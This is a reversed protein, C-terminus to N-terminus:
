ARYRDRRDIIRAREAAVLYRASGLRLDYSSSRDVGIARLMPQARQSVSGRIGFWEVLRRATLGGHHAQLTGNAKAITWAVAAAATEDKSRRRFIQPDGAAVDALFRRCATRHEVDLLDECCRDVLGAVTRVRDRIDEDVAALDLPEDALPEVDLSELVEDGGVQDRLSELLMASYDFPGDDGFDLDIGPGLLDGLEAFLEPLGGPERGAQDLQALFGDQHRHVARLTQETLRPDIGREAHAFRVLDQLVAPARRMVEDPLLVKRALFDTLLLEVSVPSWRLPDGPGYDSAFWLIGHLLDRAGDDAHAQGDETSLFREALQDLDDDSWEPREYGRGGEPLSRLVWEVLPRCAPWTETEFPPYTMAGLDIAERLRVRADALELDGFRTGPESASLEGFRDVVAEIPEDLVFADKVLTGLNHDIYVVVTLHDDAATTLGLLVNDGDGLVHAMEVARHVRLPTLRRLWRPPKHPRDQLGRRIRQALVDDAVLEALVALLASTEPKRVELFSLTLDALSPGDYSAGQVRDLAPVQEPDTAAILSSALALLPLPRSSRLAERIDLFLEPEAPEERPGGPPVNSGGLGHLRPGSGASRPRRPVGGGITM